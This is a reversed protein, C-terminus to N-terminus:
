SRPTVPIASSSPVSPAPTASPSPAPAAPAPAPAPTPAASPAPASLSSRAIVVFKHKGSAGPHSEDGVDAIQYTVRQGCGDVVNPLGRQDSSFVQLSARDCPLDHAASAMAAERALAGSTTAVEDSWAAHTTGDTAEYEIHQRERCAGTESPGGCDYTFELGCGAVRYNQASEPDSRVEIQNVPCWHNSAFANRAALPRSNVCGASALMPLSLIALALLTHRM